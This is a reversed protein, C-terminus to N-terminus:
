FVSTVTIKLHCSYIHFFSSIFHLKPSLISLYVNPYYYYFNSTFVSTFWSSAPLCDGPHLNSHPTWHHSLAMFISRDQFLRWQCTTLLPLQPRRHFLRLHRTRWWRTSTLCGQLPPLLHTLPALFPRFPCNQFLLFRACYFFSRQFHFLRLVSSSLQKWFGMSLVTKRLYHLSHPRFHQLM